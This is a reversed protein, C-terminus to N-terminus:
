NTYNTPDVLSWYERPRGDTEQKHMGAIGEAELLSLANLDDEDAKSIQNRFKTLMAPHVSMISM